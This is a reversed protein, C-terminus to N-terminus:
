RYQLHEQNASASVNTPDDCDDQGWSVLCLPCRDQAVAQGVWTQGHQAAKDQPPERLLPKQRALSIPGRSVELIDEPNDTSSLLISRQRATM